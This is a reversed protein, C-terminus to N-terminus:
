VQYVYKWNIGFIRLARNPSASPFHGSRGKQQRSKAWMEDNHPLSSEPSEAFDM